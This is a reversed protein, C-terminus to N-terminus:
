ALDGHFLTNMDAFRVPAVANDVDWIANIFDANVGKLTKATVGSTTSGSMM